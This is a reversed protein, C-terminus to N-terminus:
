KRRLIDIFQEPLIILIGNYEKLHLLDKDRSVIYDAKGELATAVVMNDKPDRVIDIQTTGPVIYSITAIETIIETIEQDPYKHLKRLRDRHLVDDAEALIIPSTILLYKKAKSYQYIEQSVSGKTNIAASVLTNTDLVARIM